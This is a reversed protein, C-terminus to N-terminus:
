DDSLWRNLTKADIDLREATRTKHGGFRTLAWRAYRRQLEDLAVVDGSFHMGPAVAPELGLDDVSIEPNNALLVGREVVHALERVNGPWAHDLFCRLASRSFGRAVAAPHRALADTFFYDTLPPIDERRDRLPPIEIPLVNLRYLLDERLTGGTVAGRLDRHTAAIVRVDVAREQTAGVPRVTGTELVRLLKPQLGIPMEALEDLLVTGRDAAVFLGPHDSTAGTFAGKVHGFLESELLQAPLAACNLAVFPESARNSAAHLARAIAGKGTGTEGTILVPVMASAVREVIGLVRRMAPSHAVLGRHAGLQKRLVAAERRLAREAIARQVFVVLEDLKFPKTLYHYAGRRIAEVASDIAGHATMVIVQINANRSRIADLLALGDLDPMRLDTVVVDVESESLMALAARASSCATADLEHDGLGDALMEAMARKDDVVLVRPRM